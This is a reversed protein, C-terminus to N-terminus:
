KIISMVMRKIKDLMVDSDMNVDFEDKFRLKTYQQPVVVFAMYIDEVSLDARYKGSDNCKQLIVQCLEKMRQVLQPDLSYSFDNQVLILFKFKEPNELTTELSIQLYRDLYQEIDTSEALVREMVESVQAFTVDLVDRVLEDKGKYHRYLYGDSVGALRAISAVSSSALGNRSISIITANRVSDIKEM